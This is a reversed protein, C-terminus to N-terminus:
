PKDERSLAVRIGHTPYRVVADYRDRSAPRASRADNRWSGSRIVRATCDGDSTWASGDSPAGQYNKHWCDEMWQDVGGGMDYLGFPNPKLSAVKLPQEGATSADLCNKCNVMGNRFQDGWWYTTQTGGRAAYEWEAESPLRYPKQATEALWTVFQKADNWSVDTIPADDRGTATFTCAKAEACNNWERVTIPTKSISFPKVSVRHIPRESPDENSGMSFTGGTIPVM